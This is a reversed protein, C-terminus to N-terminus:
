PQAGDRPLPSGCKRCFRSAEFVATGCNPCISMKKEAPELQHNLPL